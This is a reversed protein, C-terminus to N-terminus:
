NSARFSVGADNALNLHCENWEWQWLGLIMKWWKNGISIRKQSSPLVSGCVEWLCWWLSIPCLLRRMLNNCDFKFLITLCTCFWCFRLGLISPTVYHKYYECIWTIFLFAIIEQWTLAVVMVLMIWNKSLVHFSNTMLFVNWVIYDEGKM